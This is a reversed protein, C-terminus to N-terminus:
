DQVTCRADTPLYSRSSVKRWGLDNVDVYEILQLVDHLIAENPMDLKAIMQPIVNLWCTIDVKEYSAKMIEQIGSFDGYRFWLELLILTDQLTETFEPGGLSISKIFGKFAERVLTQFNSDARIDASAQLNTQLQQLRKYNTLAFLHWTKVHSDDFSLSNKFLNLVKDFDQQSYEEENLEESLWQGLKRSYTAKLKEDVNVTAFFDVICDYIQDKNLEQLKYMKEFKSLYFEPPLDLTPLAVGNLGVNGINSGSRQIEVRFMKHPQSNPSVEVMQLAQDDIPSLNSTGSNSPSIAIGQFIPEGDKPNSLTLEAELESFIRHCLGIKGKQISLQAFRIMIPLMDQKRFLLTRVSIIELWYAMNKEVGELRDNWLELLETRKKSVLKDTNTFEYNFGDITQDSSLSELFEKFALIEEMESLIQLRILKDYNNHYTQRNIGVLFNEIYKRSKRIRQRAAKFDKKHISIIAEYYNNDDNPSTEFDSYKELLDWRGLQIAARSAYQKVTSFGVSEKIFQESEEIVLEWQTLADYCRIKSQLNEFRDEKSSVPVTTYGELAEDWQGLAELWSEKVKTGLTNKAFVLMGSAAEPQGLNSYLSILSEISEDPCFHFEFERYYLAKAHANCKEALNAMSTIDLQLGQNDHEMFEALNLITKLVSMPVNPNSITQEINQIVSCKQSDNFQSWIMAFSINFLDKSINPNVNAFSKCCYLVKSPSNILLENCTKTMWEEWDEKLFNNSVDFLNKVNDANFHRIADNLKLTNEKLEKQNSVQGPTLPTGNEQMGAEMSMGRQKRDDIQDIDELDGSEKIKDTIFKLKPDNKCAPNSNKSNFTTNILPLYILAHEKFSIILAIICDKAIIALDERDLYCRILSHIINSTYQLTSEFELINMIYKIIGKLFTANECSKANMLIRCFSPLILHLYSENYEKALRFVKFIKEVVTTSESGGLLLNLLQLCITQM